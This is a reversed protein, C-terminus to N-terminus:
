FSAAASVHWQRPALPYLYVHGFQYPSEKWARRDTANDVGARWTIRSKADLSQVWKVGIDLRAWGPIKVSSDSPLVMRDGEATLAANLELGPMAAVRYTAGARLTAQPVNVPRLGNVGPTASGKREADLWMASALWAWAGSRWLLRAELGRHRASGDIVRTCSLDADCTGRDVSQPREIDFWALTSEHNEGDNKVGAEFQRSKLAPLAQGANAYRARSPAVDSEMGRGWSAYVLTAADWQHALALWPTTLSQRYNTARLSGDADASTRVSERQLRTHRVGAWLQWEPALRVADKLSWETSRETRNTNADTFGASPAVDVSGDIRGLPPGALDFIQDQFRARYRSSLVSFQLRHEIGATVVRGSVSLDLAETSRREHNSVYEWYSFRGDPAFRDCWQPCTYDAEYVGYPFATRDNSKLRQAMAHAAIRWDAGLQQELRLSATTGNMEVPQRWPQRNLNIKPDVTRADPVRDGLMSFGAVSPQAQRSSEVEAEVLTDPGIRWDAALAWLSRQGQTDRVKPDLHEYAANLRLGLAKDAGFRESLDVAGLMSGGDSLALTLSRVSREPRKVVLNVLGGPASTGAQIGSAGKLVEIRDKNDLALATEANIPLGDRRYNFRNDLAFGRVSVQAWYGDANYADGVSADLRTLAGLTSVGADSLQSAGLSLASFPSRALAVDGFGAVSPAQLGRGTVTVTQGSQAMASGAIVVAAAAALPARRFISRTIAM